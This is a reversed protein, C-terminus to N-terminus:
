FKFEFGLNLSFSSLINKTMYESIPNVWEGSQIHYTVPANAENFIENGLDKPKFLNGFGKNYRVGVNFWIPGYIKLDVGAGLLLSPYIFNTNDRIWAHWVKNDLSVNGFGNIYPEEIKLDGYQPYVGYVFAAGTNTIVKPNFMLGVLGGANFYVGLWEKIRYNYRFYIPVNLCTIGIQQNLEKIDYYRYYTNGDEDATSPAFYSYSFNSVNFNFKLPNYFAGFGISFGNHKDEWLNFEFELGFNVDTSKQTEIPLVSEIKITNSLGLSVTPKLAFLYSKKHKKQKLQDMDKQNGINSDINPNQLASVFLMESEGGQNIPTSITNDPLQITLQPIEEPIGELKLRYTRGSAVGDGNLYEPIEIELTEFGPYKIALKKTGPSLYVYFENTKYESKVVNGEFVAKEPISVKILACKKNNLDMVANTNATIDEPREIFSEVILDKAFSNAALLYCVVIVICRFIRM